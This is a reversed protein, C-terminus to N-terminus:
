LLSIIKDVLKKPSVQDLIAILNKDIAEYYESIDMQSM